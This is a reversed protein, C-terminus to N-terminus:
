CKWSSINNALFYGVKKKNEEIINQFDKKEEINLHLYLQKLRQVRLCDIFKTFMLIPLLLFSRLTYEFFNSYEKSVNWDVFSHNYTDSVRNIKNIINPALSETFNYNLLLSNIDQIIKDYVISEPILYISLILLFFAIFHISNILNVTSEKKFANLYVFGVRDKSPFLLNLDIIKRKTSFFDYIYAAILGSIISIIFEIM